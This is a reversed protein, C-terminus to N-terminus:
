HKTMGHLGHDGADACNKCLHLGHRRQLMGMLGQPQCRGSSDCEKRMTRQPKQFHQLEFKRFAEQQRIKTAKNHVVRKQVSVPVIDVNQIIGLAGCLGVAALLLPRLM